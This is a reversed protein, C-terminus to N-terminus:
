GFLGLSAVFLIGKKGVSTLEGYVLDDNLQCEAEVGGVKDTVTHKVVLDPAGM